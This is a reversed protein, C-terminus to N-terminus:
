VQLSFSLGRFNSKALWTAILLEKAQGDASLQSSSTPLGIAKRFPMDWISVLPYRLPPM